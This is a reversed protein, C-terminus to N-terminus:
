WIIEYELVFSYLDIISNINNDLVSRDVAQGLEGLASRFQNTEPPCLSEDTKMAAEWLIYLVAVM